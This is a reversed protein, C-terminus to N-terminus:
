EATGTIINENDNKSNFLFISFDCAMLPETRNNCLCSCAKEPRRLHLNNGFLGFKNM